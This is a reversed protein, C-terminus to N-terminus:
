YLKKHKHNPGTQILRPPPLTLRWHVCNPKCGGCFGCGMPLGGTLVTSNATQLWRLLRPFWIINKMYVAGIPGLFNNNHASVWYYIHKKALVWFELIQSLKGGRYPGILMVFELIQSLKVGKYAGINM